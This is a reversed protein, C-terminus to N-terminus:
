GFLLAAENWRAEPVQKLQGLAASFPETVIDTGKLAVMQGWQQEAIVRVANM